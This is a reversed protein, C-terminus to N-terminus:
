ISIVTINANTISAKKWLDVPIEDFALAGSAVTSVRVKQVYVSSASFYKNIASSIEFPSIDNGLRCGKYGEINGAAWEQIALKIQSIVDQSSVLGATVEILLPLDTPRDVKVTENYVQGSRPDTYSGLETNSFGYFATGYTHIVYQEAIEDVNGGDVCIWTSKAPITIGDIIQPTSERNERGSVAIVNTLADINAIAAGLISGANKALQITRSLKASPLFQRNRGETATSTNTITEWGTVGSVVQSVDGVGASIPGTDNALITTTGNGSSDLTVDTSTYWLDQTSQNRVFSGSPIFTGAIGTLLAPAFSRTAGDREGGFLAYIADFFGDEALNPNIQNGFKANNIAIARKVDTELEALRGEITSENRTADESVGLADIVNEISEERLDSTDAVITGTSTVYDYVSNAM